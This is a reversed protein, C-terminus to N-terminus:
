INYSVTSYSNDKISGKDTYLSESSTLGELIAKSVSYTTDLLVKNKEN